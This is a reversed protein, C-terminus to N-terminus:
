LSLGELIVSLFEFEFLFGQFEPFLSEELSGGRGSADGGRQQAFAFVQVMLVGPPSWLRHLLLVSVPFLLRTGSTTEVLNVLDKLMKKEFSEMFTIPTNNAYYM